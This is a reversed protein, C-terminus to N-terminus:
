LLHCEILKPDVEALKGETRLVRKVSALHPIADEPPIDLKVHKDWFDQSAELIIEQLEKNPTIQYMRRGRGGLFAPVYCVEADALMIHVQCQVLYIQPIQDTGNEGWGDPLPSMLGSTKAEVPCGSKIVVADPHSIMPLTEHRFWLKQPDYLLRGLEKEAWELVGREFMIGAEAAESIFTQPELKDTKELWVDYANAYPSLGLIKPVDSSGIYHKRDKLQKATLPM